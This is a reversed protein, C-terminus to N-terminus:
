ESTQPENCWRFMGVAAVVASLLYFAAALSVVLRSHPVIPIPDNSAIALLATAIGLVGAVYTTAAIRRRGRSALDAYAALTSRLVDNRRLREVDYAQLSAAVASVFPVIAALAFWLFKSLFADRNAEPLKELALAAQELAVTRDDCQQVKAELQELCELFQVPRSSQILDAAHGSLSSRDVGSQLLEAGRLGVRHNVEARVSKGFRLPWSGLVPAAREMLDLLFTYAQAFPRAHDAESIMAEHIRDAALRANRCQEALGGGAVGLEDALAARHVALALRREECALAARAIDARSLLRKYAPAQPLPADRLRVMVAIRPDLVEPGPQALAAAIQDERTLLIRHVRGAFALWVAAVDDLRNSAEHEIAERRVSFVETLRAVSSVQVKRFAVDLAAALLYIVFGEAPASGTLLRSARDLLEQVADVMDLGRAERIRHDLETLKSQQELRFRERDNRASHCEHELQDAEFEIGRVIARNANYRDLEADYAAKEQSYRSLRQTYLERDSDRLRQADYMGSYACPNRLGEPMIPREPEKPMQVRFLAAHAQARKQSVSADLRAIQQSLAGLHNECEARYRNAVAKAETTYRGQLAADVYEITPPKDAMACAVLRKPLRDLAAALAALLASEQADDLTVSSLDIPTFIAQFADHNAHEVKALLPALDGNESRIQNLLSPLRHQDYAGYLLASWAERPAGDLDIRTMNLGADRGLRRLVETQYFEDALRQLLTPLASM